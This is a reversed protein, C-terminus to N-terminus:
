PNAGPQPAADAPQSAGVPQGAGADAPPPADAPQKAPASADAPAAADAPMEPEEDEPPAGQSLVKTVEGLAVEIKSRLTERDLPEEDDDPKECADFLGEFGEMLGEEGHVWEAHPVETALAAIGMTPRENGTERKWWPWEYYSVGTLGFFAANLATALRRRNGLTVDEEEEKARGMPGYPSSMMGEMYEDGYMEGEMGGYEEMMGDPASYMESGMSMDMTSGMAMPGMGPFGPRSQKRKEQEAEQEMRDFEALCADSALEGLGAVLQWVDLGHDAPYSLRGVARAAASRVLLDEDRDTLIAKLAKVVANQEGLQGLDGLINIAKARVWAHGEPVRGQATKTQALALMPPILQDRRFQPDERRLKAQRELGLMAAMQVADRGRQNQNADALAKLLVPIAEPLPTPAETRSPAEQANLDGIAVLANYRAAPHYGPDAAITGLYDLVLAALERHAETGKANWFENRLERRWNPLQNMDEFRLSTWRALAYEKYYQEFMARQDNPISGGRLLRNIDMRKTRLGETVEESKYRGPAVAPQAPQAAKEPAKETPKQKPTAAPKKPAAAPQARVLGGLAVVLILALFPIAPFRSVTLGFWHRTVTRM